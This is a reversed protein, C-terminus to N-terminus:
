FFVVVGRSKLLPIYQTVSIIDLPNNSLGIVDGSDLGPNKVLPLISTIKNNSLDLGELVTLHELADINEIQNLDLYLRVLKSCGSLADIRSIQNKSANLYELKTMDALPGLDSIHSAALFVIKLNTLHALADIAEIPGDGLYLEKLDTKDGLVTLDSVPNWMANFYVLKKMNRIPSIDSIQNSNIDLWRLEVLNALPSIDTINFNQDLYLAQLHVLSALPSVDTVQQLSAFLFTLNNCKEIGALSTVTAYSTWAMLSDMRGLAETTVNGTPCKLAYRVSVELVPDALLSRRRPSVRITVTDPSSDQLGNNVVLSYRYKGEVVFGLTQHPNHTDIYQRAPNDGFATWKFILTDGGGPDSASGDLEVYNGLAVTQDPGADAKLGKVQDPPSFPHRCVLFLCISMPIIARGRNFLM